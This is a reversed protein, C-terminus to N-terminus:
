LIKISDKYDEFQKALQPQFFGEDDIEDINEKYGEKLKKVFLAKAEKLAQNHPSTENKKGLNKGTCYSPDTTVLQGDKQGYTTTYYNDGVTITWEQTAGTNTRAYLTNLKM